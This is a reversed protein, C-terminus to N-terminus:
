YYESEKILNIYKNCLLLEYSYGIQDISPSHKDNYSCYYHTLRRQLGRFLQQLKLNEIKGYEGLKLLVEKNVLILNFINYSIYLKYWKHFQPMQHQRVDLYSPFYMNYKNYNYNNNKNNKIVSRITKVIEGNLTFDFEYSVDTILINIVRLLLTNLPDISLWEEPSRKISNTNATSINNSMLINSYIIIKQTYPLLKENENNLIYKEGHQTYVENLINDLLILISSSLEKIVNESPIKFSTTNEAGTNTIPNNSRSAYRTNNSSNYISYQTTIMDIYSKKNSDYLNDITNNRSTTNGLTSDTDNCGRLIYRNMINLELLYFLTNNPHNYGLGIERSYTINSNVIKYSSAFLEFINEDDNYSRINPPGFIDKLSSNYETNLKELYEECISKKDEIYKYINYSKNFELTTYGGNDMLIVGHILFYILDNHSLLHISELDRIISMFIYRIQQSSISPNSNIIKKIDDRDNSRLIATIIRENNENDNNDNNNSDNDNNDNNDSDNNGDNGNNGYLMRMIINFYLIYRKEQYTLIRNIDLMKPNNIYKVKDAVIKKDNLNNNTGATTNLNNLTNIDGGYTKINKKRLSL